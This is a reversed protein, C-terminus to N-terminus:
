RNSFPPMNMYPWCWAGEALRLLTTLRRLDSESTAPAESTEVEDPLNLARATM